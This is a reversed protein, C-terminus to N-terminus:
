APAFFLAFVNCRRSNVQICRTTLKKTEHEFDNLFQENQLVAVPAKQTDGLFKGVNRGLAVAQAGVGGTGL